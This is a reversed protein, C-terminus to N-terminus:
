NNENKQELDGANKNADGEPDSRHSKQHADIEQMKTLEELILNTEVETEDSVIIERESEQAMDEEEPLEVYEEAAEEGAPVVKDTAREEENAADDVALPENIEGEQTPKTEDTESSVLMDPMNEEQATQESIAVPWVIADSTSQNSVTSRQEAFPMDREGEEGFYVEKLNHVPGELTGLASPGRVADFNIFLISQFISTFLYGFLSFLMAILGIAFVDKADVIHNTGFSILVSPLSALVGILLVNGFIKAVKSKTLIRSYKLSKIASFQYKMRGFVSLSYRVSLYITFVTMVLWLVAAVWLQWLKSLVAPDEFTQFLELNSLFMASFLVGIVISFVVWIGALFLFYLVETGLLPFARRFSYRLMEGFRRKKGAVYSDSILYFMTFFINSFLAYGALMVFYVFFFAPLAKMLLATLEQTTMKVVLSPDQLIGPVSAASIAALLLLVIMTWGILLGLGVALTGIYQGFRKKTAEIMHSFYEGFTLIREYIEQRM